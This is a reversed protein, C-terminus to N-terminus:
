PWPEWTGKVDRGAELSILPMTGMAGKVDRGAGLSPPPVGWGQSILPLM